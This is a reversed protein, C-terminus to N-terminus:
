HNTLFEQCSLLSWVFDEAIQIRQGPGAAQSLEAMWYKREVATPFRSLARLYFAEILERDTKSSKLSQQLYSTPGSLKGNILEGNILHLTRALGAPGQSLSECSSERSCRGLIDLATNPTAPDFLSVARTGAPLEGFIESVSTVDSLADVFVEPSLERILAHSYFKDDAVNNATPRSDRAYAASSVITRLTHRLDFGSEIFDDALAQLLVPHTAPNTTRIDDTPGVLGRGMLHQWLRNVVAKAFYPNNPQVLWDAFEQRHDQGAPLFQTGPIRPQAPLGTRPHTVEGRPGIRIVRGREINAFIAALGHYDDQTWHDLPHNHCNACRLRVGLFLESVFEAQERATSAVRYFNAPGSVHTDGEATLLQWAIRDYTTGTAIQTKLWNHFALAGQQDNPQARIRLLRAWNLTWAEVFEPSALLSEILRKRKHATKDKLFSRIRQSEPLRGTLDLSVRRLFAADDVQPSPHYGLQELRKLIHTDIFNFSPTDPPTQPPSPHPILFEMPVVRDLYRATVIHRGTRAAQRRLRGPEIVFATPDDPRFVTWDTVDTETGDDFTATAAVPISANDSNLVLSTPTVTFNVLRRRRLRPAGSRLWNLIRTAGPGSLDLRAGGGHEISETAKLFMLSNEAHALNVRRGERELVLSRYDKSPDSGYLSLRLGGRGIAAGHCAGSNCGAHTLVPVIETDFDVPHEARVAVSLGALLLASRWLQTATIM